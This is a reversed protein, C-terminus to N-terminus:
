SPFGSADLEITYSGANKNENVLTVVENGGVDYIKIPVYNFKPLQYNITTNPNFFIGNGENLLLVNPAFERAIVIDLDGDNDFDASSVDMGPGSVATVPLNSSTVDRYLVSDGMVKAYLKFNMLIFCNLVTVAFLLNLIKM